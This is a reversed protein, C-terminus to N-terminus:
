FLSMIHAEENAMHDTTARVHPTTTVVVTESVVDESVM